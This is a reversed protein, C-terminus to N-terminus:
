AAAAALQHAEQLQVDPSDALEAPTVEPDEAPRSPYVGLPLEVEVDPEVGAKWIQEGAPTLWLATGLLAVSGDELEFPSLVHSADSLREALSPVAAEPLEGFFHLTIHMNAVPQWRKVNVRGALEREVREIERQAEPAIAVASFLRM